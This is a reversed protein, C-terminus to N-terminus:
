AEKIMYITNEDKEALADYEEQTLAVLNYAGNAKEDLAEKIVKNQVPNTSASNIANDVKVAGYVSTTASPVVAKYNTITADTGAITLGSLLSFSNYNNDIVRLGNIFGSKGLVVPTAVGDATYSLQTGSANQAAEITNVVHNGKVSIVQGSINIGSGASYPQTEASIADVKEDLATVQSQVVASLAYPTLDVNAVKDTVVSVGNVKVDEVAAETEGSIVEIKNELNDVQSQVVASLAYPTLDIQAIRHDVVSSGNVKVDDVNGTGGSGGIACLNGDEDLYLGDGYKLKVSLGDAKLPDEASIYISPAFDWSCPYSHNCKCSM